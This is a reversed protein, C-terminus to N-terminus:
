WPLVKAAARSTSCTQEQRPRSAKPGVILPDFDIEGARFALAETTSNSFFTFSIRQINVKGGWWDPNASLEPGTTTDLSDFEWPGSGM